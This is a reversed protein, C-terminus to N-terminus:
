HEHGQMFHTCDLVYVLQQFIALRSTGLPQIVALSVFRM